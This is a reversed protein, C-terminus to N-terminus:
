DKWAFTADTEYVQGELRAVVHVITKDPDEVTFASTEYFTPLVDDQPLNSYAFLDIVADAIDFARAMSRAWIHVDLTIDHRGHDRPSITTFDFVVHPYMADESALRYSVETIGWETAISQLRAEVVRRMENIM